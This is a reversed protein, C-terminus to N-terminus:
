NQTECAQFNSNVGLSLPWAFYQCLQTYELEDASTDSKQIWFVDATWLVATLLLHLFTDLSDTEESMWAQSLLWIIQKENSSLEYNKVSNFFTICGAM